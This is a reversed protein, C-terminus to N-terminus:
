ATIDAKLISLFDADLWLKATIAPFLSEASPLRYYEFRQRDVSSIGHFFTKWTVVLLFRSQAKLLTVM